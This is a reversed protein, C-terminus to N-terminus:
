EMVMPKVSVYGAGRATRSNALQSLRDAAAVRSADIYDAQAEVAADMDWKQLEAADARHTFPTSLEPNQKAYDPYMDYM